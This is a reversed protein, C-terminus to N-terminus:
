RDGFQVTFVVVGNLNAAGPISETDAVTLLGTTSAVTFTRVSGSATSATVLVTGGPDFASSTVKSLGLAQPNCLKKLKGNSPLSFMQTDSGGGGAFTALLGSSSVSIGGDVDALGPSISGKVRSLKGTSAKVKFTAIKGGGTYGGTFAFRGLPDLVTYYIPGAGTTKTTKKSAAKVTGDAKVAYSRLTNDSENVYVLKNSAGALTSIGPIGTLPLGPVRTLTGDGAVEFGDMSGGNYQTAYAFTRAGVAVSQVSTAAAGVQYKFPSGAIVGLTGDSTYRWSTIGTSGATLIVNKSPAAAMANSANFGTGPGDPSTFPSGAVPTLAGAPGLLYGFVRPPSSADHVYVFTIGASVPPAASSPGASSAVLAAMAPVVLVIRHLTRRPM